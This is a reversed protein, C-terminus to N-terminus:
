FINNKLLSIILLEYYLTVPRSQEYIREYLIRFLKLLGLRKIYYASQMRKFNFRDIVKGIAVNLYLHQYQSYNM